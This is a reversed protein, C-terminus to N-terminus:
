RLLGFVFLLGFILQLMATAGLARILSVPDTKSWVLGLPRILLPITLFPLLIRHDYHQFYLMVPIVYPILLFLTFEIRGFKRGLAAALTRKGAARDTDIDRVNNAVLIASAHLGPVLGIGFSEALWQGTLLFSTGAVALIGFFFLVFLEGLGNYGLPFPGNTYAWGAWIGTAGILLIPWGGKMILPVSFLVALGYAIIFGARVHEPKILGSQTVRVPGVRTGTDAGKRYDGYDNSLNTGIQIFVASLLICAFIFWDTPVFRSAYAAGILVPAIAAVLTKPRAALLWSKFNSIHSSTNL